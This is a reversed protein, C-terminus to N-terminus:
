VALLPPVRLGTRKATRVTVLCLVAAHHRPRAALSGGAFRTCRPEFGLSVELSLLESPRSRQRSLASAAPEFGAERVEPRLHKLRCELSKVQSSLTRSEPSGRGGSSRFGRSILHPAARM